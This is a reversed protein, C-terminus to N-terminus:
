AFSRLFDSNGLAEELAGELVHVPYSCTFEDMCHDGYENFNAKVIGSDDLREILDNIDESPVIDNPNKRYFAMMSAKKLDRRTVAEKAGSAQNRKMLKVVVSAVIKGQAPLDAIFQSVKPYDSNLRAIDRMKVIFDKQEPENVGTTKLAPQSQLREQVAKIATAALEIAQRVDGSNNEIKAAIFKLASPDVVQTGVRSLLIEVIDDKSYASFM